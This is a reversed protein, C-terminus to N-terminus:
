FTYNPEGNYVDLGLLIFKEKKELADVMAEDDIM